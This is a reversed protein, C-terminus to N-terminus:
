NINYIRSRNCFLPIGLVYKGINKPGTLSFHTSPWMSSKKIASSFNRKAPSVNPSRVMLVSSSSLFLNTQIFQTSTPFCIISSPGSCPLLTGHWRLFCSVQQMYRAKHLFYHFGQGKSFQSVAVSDPDANGTGPTSITKVRLFSSFLGSSLIFANEIIVLFCNSM